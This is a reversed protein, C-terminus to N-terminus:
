PVCTTTARTVDLKVSSGAPVATFPLAFITGTPLHPDPTVRVWLGVTAGPALAGTSWGGHTVAATVDINASITRYVVKWCNTPGPGSVTFGDIMSSDNQVRFLYDAPVGARVNLARAQNSGNVSYLNDGSYNAELATRLWLDAQRTPLVTTVTTAIDQVAGAASIAAIRITKAAGSRTTVGPIVQLWIGQTNGPAILGTEWGNGTVQATIDGGTATDFYRVSWGEDGAVGTLTFREAGAGDNQIRFLYVAAASRGVTQQKVQQLLDALYLNDGSYATEAPVRLWLDSQSVGVVLTIAQVYDLKSTDTQSTANVRLTLSSGRTAGSRPTAQVWCGKFAGSAVAGTLWGGGTMQTTIDAGTDTDRYVM